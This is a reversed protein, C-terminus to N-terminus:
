GLTLILSKTTMTVTLTNTVGRPRNDPIALAPAITSQYTVVPLTGSRTGVRMRFTTTTTGPQVNHDAHFSRRVRQLRVAVGFHCVTHHKRCLGRAAINPYASTAAHIATVGADRDDPDLHDRQSGALGQAVSQVAHGVLRVAEGPDVVGNVANGPANDNVVVDVTKDNVSLYPM